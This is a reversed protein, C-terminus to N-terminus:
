TSPRDVGSARDQGVEPAEVKGRIVADAVKDDRICNKARINELLREFIQQAEAYTPKPGDGKLYAQVKGWGKPVPVLRRHAEGARVRRKAVHYGAGRCVDADRRSVAVERGNADLLKADKVSLPSPAAGVTLALAGAM